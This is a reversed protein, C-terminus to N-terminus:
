EKGMGPGDLRVCHVAAGRKKLLKKKGNGTIKFRLEIDCKLINHPQPGLSSPPFSARVESQQGSKTQSERASRSGEQNHTTYLYMHM